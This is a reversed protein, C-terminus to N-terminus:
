AAEKVVTISTLSEGGSVLAIIWPTLAWEAAAEEARAKTPFTVGSFVVGTVTEVVWKGPSDPSEIARTIEKTEM